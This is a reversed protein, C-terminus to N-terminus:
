STISKIEIELSKNVLRTSVFFEGIMEDNFTILKKGPQNMRSNELEISGDM